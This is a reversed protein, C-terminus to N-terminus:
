NKEFEDCVDHLARQLLAVIADDNQLECLPIIRRRRARDRTLVLVDPLVGMEIEQKLADLVALAKKIQSLRRTAAIDFLAPDMHTEGNIAFLPGLM